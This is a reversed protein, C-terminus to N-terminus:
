KLKEIKLLGGTQMTPEDTTTIMTTTTPTTPLGAPTCSTKKIPGGFCRCLCSSTRPWVLKRAAAAAAASSLQSLIPSAVGDDGVGGGGLHGLQQLALHYALKTAALRLASVGTTTILTASTTCYLSAGLLNTCLQRAAICLRAGYLACCTAARSACASEQASMALRQSLVALAWCCCRRPVPLLLLM